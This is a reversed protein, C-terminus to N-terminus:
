IYPNQKYFHLLTPNFSIGWSSSLDDGGTIIAAASKYITTDYYMVGGSKGGPTDATSHLRLNPINHAEDPADSFDTVTGTSYYRAYDDDDEDDNNYDHSTFGSSTLNGTQAKSFELSPIAINWASTYDLLDKGQTDTGVYILAYDYNGQRNDNLYTRYLVPIHYSEAEFSAILNSSNVVANQDYINVTIGEVFNNVGENTNYVSHAATAIVNKNIVFGSGDYIYGGYRISLQVVNTNENDQIDAAVDLPYTITEDLAANITTSDGLYYSTTTGTNCNYKLYNRGSDDPLTYLEKTVRETSTIHYADRYLIIYSDTMDVVKDQNIDMATFGYESAGYRGGLFQQIATSDAITVRGDCNGDGWLVSTAASASSMTIISSASITVAMTTLCSIVKKFINM